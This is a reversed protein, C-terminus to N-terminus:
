KSSNRNELRSNEYAEQESAGSGSGQILIQTAEKGKFDKSIFLSNVLKDDLYMDVKSNIPAKERYDLTGNKGDSLRYVMFGGGGLNGANPYVVALALDTAIMADFANGGRKLIDIGAKSAEHKASVVMGSRYNNDCSILQVILLLYFLSNKFM